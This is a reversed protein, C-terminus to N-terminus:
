TPHVISDSAARIADLSGRVEFIHALPLFSMMTKGEEDTVYHVFDYVTIAMNGHSLLVGASINLICTM